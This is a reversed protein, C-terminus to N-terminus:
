IIPDLRWEEPINQVWEAKLRNIYNDAKNVSPSDSHRGRVRARFKWTM